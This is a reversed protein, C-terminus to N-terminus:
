LDLIEIPMVKWLKGYIHLQDQEDPLIDFDGSRYFENDSSVKIVNGKSIFLRKIYDAGQFNFYYIGSSVFENIDTKMFASSKQPITPDMSDGDPPVLAINKLNTTGFLELAAEHTFSINRLLDPYNSNFHGNGCSAAIDYLKLEIIGTKAEQEVAIEKHTLNAASDLFGQPMGYDAELRRALREGFSSKGNFIQSFLSKEKQPIGNVEVWKHLQNTRIAKLSETSSYFLTEFLGKKVTHSVEEHEEIEEKPVTYTKNILIKKNMWSESVANATKDKDEMMQSEM